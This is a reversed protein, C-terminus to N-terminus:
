RKKKHSKYLLHRSKRKKHRFKILRIAYIAAIICIVGLVSSYIYNEKVSNLAKKLSQSIVSSDQQINSLPKEQNEENQNQDSYSKNIQNFSENIKANSPSSSITTANTKNSISSSIMVSGSSSRPSDQPQSQVTLVRLESQAQNGALDSCNISWNYSGVSLSSNYMGLNNNKLPFSIYNILNGGLVLFCSSLNYNDTANFTFNYSSTTSSTLNAPSVLNVSPSTLDYIVSHNNPLSSNSANNWSYCSWSYNDQRPFTFNFSLSASLNTTFNRVQSNILGSINYMLFTVNTISNLYVSESLCTYNLTDKNTYNNDPPSILYTSVGGIILSFNSTINFNNNFDTFMCAWKYNGPLINTINFQAAYTSALINLSSSNYLSSSNWLFFTLNKLALDTANCKFTYNQSINQHMDPPSLLSIAPSTNDLSNLANFLNIRTLNWTDNVRIRKGTDNLIAEIQKPTKSINISELYQKIIAISASVHPAAMSTGASVSYGGNRWTSLIDGGPAFLKIISSYDSYAPISDDKATASVPTANSLCAPASIADGSGHNGSAAVVSINNMTANNVAEVIIDSIDSDCYGSYLVDTGLSLSIVSINYLNKNEVCWDIANTLDISGRGPYSDGSNNLIKLSILGAGPAVGTIGGSAAIIGAVHTGHGYGDNYSSDQACDKGYCDLNYSRNKGILDPHSFNVGTDIVCVTEDIGTLNISNIQLSNAITSNILKTSDQLFAHFTPSFDVKMVKSNAELQSLEEKTIKAILLNEEVISANDLSEKIEQATDNFSSENGADIIVDVYDHEDLNSYVQSDIKSEQARIIQLNILFIAFILLCTFNSKNM